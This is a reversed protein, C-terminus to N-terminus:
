DVGWRRYIAGLALAVGVGGLWLWHDWQPYRLPYELCIIQKGGCSVGEEL